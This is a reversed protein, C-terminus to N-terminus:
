QFLSGVHRAVDPFALPSIRQRRTHVERTRYGAPAPDRYVEITRDSLNVIWYEKIGAEAFLPGKVERDKDLSTDAVEIVLFVDRPLPLRTAYNRRRLLMVDPEPESTLAPIGISGQVRVRVRSRPLSSISWENLRDVVDNHFPSIPSMPVIEGRILEVRNEERPEFAGRAIMREYQEVTIHVTTSM